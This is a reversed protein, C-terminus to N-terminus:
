GIDRGGPAGERIQPFKTLRGQFPIPGQVACGPTENTADREGGSPVCDWNPLILRPSKMVDSALAGPAFYANGRNEPDRTTQPVSQSGLVILQPLTHGNSASGPPAPLQLKLASPGINLFDSIVSQNMELYALIPTLQRLFPDAAALTPDLERLVRSLAPLGTRGARVLAPLRNFLAEADPSLERLSALTPRADRLVPRLDRLLPTTDRAFGDLRRLTTRSERLFTPFIQISDALAERRGALTDMVEANRAIFNRLAAEDRSLADFTTGTERVLASLAERRRGLVDVVEQANEVFGPLNGLADNFDRGQGGIARATSIQWQQFARRTPEDFTRLLEDFEVTPRVRGNALRGGEPVAEADRSGTTLEVYTEGLLTKQRLTARADRKLPAFKEELEITALTRNGDPALRKDVVKGVNVGAVRVDTEKALTVADNFAVQFRYGKAGLPIPGGFALWLFLLLGFCSLSFGAIVVIQTLKPGRTNV